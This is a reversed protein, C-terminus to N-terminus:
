ISLVCPNALALSGACWVPRPKRGRCVIWNLKMLENQELEESNQNLGIMGNVHAMKRKDNSFSSRDQTEKRWAQANAQTGSVFLLHYKQSIVRCQRCNYNLQDRPEKIRTPADVLDIYDLVVIDPIWSDIRWEEIMAAIEQMSITAVCHMKLFDTRRSRLFTENFEEQARKIEGLTMEDKCIKRKRKVRPPGVKRRKISTPYYWAGDEECEDLHPRGVLRAEIRRTIQDESMDGVQIYFVKRRNKIGRHVIDQMWFSKKGKEPGQFLIFSDRALRNGYFKGIPENLDYTIVPDLQKEFTRKHVDMEQYPNSTGEVGMEIKRFSTVLENAEDPRGQDLKDQAKEILQKLKTQTFYSAATDVVFEVNTEHSEEDYQRSLSRIFRDVLEVTSKDDARKAWKEFCQEVAKGPAKRYKNYHDVCWRGLLNAWPSPFMEDDYKSAIRGLVQDNTVMGILISRLEKSEVRKVKM